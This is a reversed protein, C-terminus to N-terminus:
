ELNLRRHTLYNTVGFMAGSLLLSIADVTIAVCTLVLFPPLNNSLLRTLEDDFAVVGAGLLILSLIQLAASIVLYTVFAAIVKHKQSFTQGVAICFYAMTFFSIEAILVTVAFLVILGIVKAAALYFTAREWVEAPTIIEMVGISFLAYVSLGTVVLSVIGWFVAVILKVTQHYGNKVPLTLTLYGEDTFLNKYYRQVGCFHAAFIYALIGLIYFFALIGILINTVTYLINREPMAQHVAVLCVLLLTAAAVMLLFPLQIRATARFEHKLLKGLM